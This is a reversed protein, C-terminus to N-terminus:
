QRTQPRSACARGILHRNAGVRPSGHQASPGRLGGDPHVVRRSLIGRLRRALAPSTSSITSRDLKRSAEHLNRRSDIGLKRYAASLHIEVTRTTVFLSQAIERNTIGAAALRAVRRESGTLADVGTVATRRPRRGMAVLEDRARQALLSAGLRAAVDLARACHARQPRAPAPAAASPASISGRASPPRWM